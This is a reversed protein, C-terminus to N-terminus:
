GKKKGGKGASQSKSKERPAAKAREMETLRNPDEPQHTRYWMILAGAFLLLVLASAAYAIKEGLYYSRPEFRMELKMNQGAPLRMARVLYNAKIFDAAPQGNLYCKWGKAPPYYMESFVALQESPASYEYEMKDPHYRTLRITATSDPQIQLGNLVSAFSQQIVATDKPNLHRLANFEADADPVVEVHRVFWANGHAEPNRMVEGKQGIIYKGNLMGVIHLNDGLNVNLFSDVVEQIRQLKAAHYGSLSKHYYSTTWNTTIGGRSLDLVRYFPDPDQKIQKDYDTEPAPALATRKSEYKDSSITLACVMWHDALAVLAISVVMISAKLRGTLYLWLLGVALAVFGVSRFVDSRIMDARDEKLLNLLTQDQALIQDNQGSTSGTLLAILCLAGTTGAAIWLAKKKRDQDIEPDMWKQVGLAALIAVCMQAMGLAMSVARFKKFMPMYDYWFFNLAFNKGWALSLMFLGGGLLWYKTSGTVLLAGLFFLFCVIAGFYIATGVFPQTGTYFLGSIQNRAQPSVAKYLQTEKFKEAAGGGAYHPM